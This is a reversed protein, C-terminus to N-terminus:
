GDARLATLPDVRGARWAPWAAAVITVSLLVVIATAANGVEWPSTNFLMGRVFGGAGMAVITGLAIGAAVLKLSDLIVLRWMMRRSAGLAIRVGLERTRQTVLYSIVGFLGV